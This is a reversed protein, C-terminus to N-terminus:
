VGWASRGSSSRRFRDKKPQTTAADLGATCLLATAAMLEAGESLKGKDDRRLVRVQAILGSLTRFVRLRNAAIRQLATELAADPEALSATISLKLKELREVIAAGEALDRGNAKPAFVGPVWEARDRIAAAHVALDNRTAAYEAYIYVTDEQKSHAGWVVSVRDQAISLAYVRPWDPPIDIPDCVIDRDGTAIVPTGDHVMLETLAWVLADLRDPSYGAAQTDFDPTFACLQDELRPFAGVHHVVGQEYLASIPEARIAKGRSAHIARYPVNPSVVRLTHEVMEGGNNVEAVIRDAKRATFLAIAEAAWGDKGGPKRIASQDDLVYAHGDTGIGACIIGTENSDENSSAGPDIAVVIRVLQPLEDPRVRLEEIRARSWLAGPVDDLIEADLEQRGLRTGEYRKLISRIFSPALNHANETTSGRTIATAPDAVLEKLLKIPRPTTTVIVRPHPGDRLGFQLQDWTAQAYRWKALEDCWAASHAPGRLQDPETANYITAIAGNPWTLRRKSPEYKPLFDKPHVQLIGSGAMPDSPAKGDGVMVDRADSATEAILAVHRYRGGTLPTDGCMNARVWEAGTRTKGFGRGALVLWTNWPTGSQSFEPAIQNVRGWFPWDFDLTGVDDLESLIETQEASSLSALLEARSANASIM